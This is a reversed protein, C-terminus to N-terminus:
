SAFWTRLQGPQSLELDHQHSRQQPGNAASSKHTESLECVEFAFGQKVWDLHQGLHAGELALHVAKLRGVSEFARGSEIDSRIHLLISCLVQIWSVCMM